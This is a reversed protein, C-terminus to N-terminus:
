GEAAGPGGGVARPAGDRRVRERAIADILWGTEDARRGAAISAEVCRRHYATAKEARRRARSAARRALRLRAAVRDAEGGLEADTWDRLPRYYLCDTEHGLPRHTHRCDCLPGRAEVASRCPIFPPPGDNM